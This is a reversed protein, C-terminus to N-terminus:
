PGGDVRVAQVALKNGVRGAFANALRLSTWAAPLLWGVSLARSLLGPEHRYFMGYRSPPLTRFGHAELCGTVDDLTLRAVRNGAEERELAFGARAAMWTLVARAPETLAVARDAVRAMESLAKTPQEVHHLGDHVYVLDFSRDRFPLREVDAVVSILDFGTRRARELARSAAGRSIDTTTVSAGARALFQADMGSGGCVVLVTAGSLFPELGRVARAFRDQLLRKYLAPAGAPRAVEWDADVEADFFASQSRKQCGLRRPLMIPIGCSLEYRTQCATCTLGQANGIVPSTCELCILRDLLVELQIQPRSFTVRTM